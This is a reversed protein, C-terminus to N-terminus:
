YESGQMDESVLVERDIEGIVPKDIVTDIKHTFDEDLDLIEGHHQTVPDNIRQPMVPEISPKSETHTVVSSGDSFDIHLKDIDKSCEISLKFM